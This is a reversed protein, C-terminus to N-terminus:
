PEVTVTASERLSRIYDDLRKRDAATTLEDRIEDLAPPEQRRTDELLIVHFGFETQVPEASYSGVTMAQVASSFAPPMSDLTFWDLAGGNPGTPGDARQEALAVFDTGQRLEAIVGDAEEKSTVLIHRAKFQQGSLRSLNEDYIARIDAESAPNKEVYETAMARGVLQLRQLEIQAALTRSETLGEKEAQQALLELGIVDALLRERDEPSLDDFNRRETASAYIRLVSEAIPRGNVSAVRSSGLNGAPAGAPAGPEPQSCAAVSLALLSTFPAVRRSVRM